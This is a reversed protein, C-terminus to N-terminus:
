NQFMKFLFSYSLTVTTTRDKEKKRISIGIVTTKMPKIPNDITKETGKEIKIFGFWGGISLFSFLEKNLTM